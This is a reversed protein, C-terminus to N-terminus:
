LVHISYVRVYFTYNSTHLKKYALFLIYYQKVSHAKM